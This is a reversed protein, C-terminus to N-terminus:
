KGILVPERFKDVRSAHRTAQRKDETYNKNTGTGDQRPLDAEPRHKGSLTRTILIARSLVNGGTCRRGISTM